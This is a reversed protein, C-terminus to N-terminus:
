DLWLEDPLENIDDAHQPLLEAFIPQSGKVFQLIAEASDRSRIAAKAANRLKDLETPPLAEEVGKDAIIIAQREQWCFLVLVGTRHRTEHIGAKQFMARARMEAIQAMEREGVMMRGLAPFVWVLGAGVLFAAVTDVYIHIYHFEAEVFMLLTLAMVSLAAGLMLPVHLYRQVRPLVAVVLEVSSSAEVDQVSTRLSDRFQDNFKRM